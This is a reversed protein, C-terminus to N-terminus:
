QSALIQTLEAQLRDAVDQVSADSFLLEQYYRTVVDQVKPALEEVGSPAVSEATPVADVVKQFWPNEALYDAPVIDTRAPTQASMTIYDEQWQKELVQLIVKAAGDKNKADRPIALFGNVSATRESGFPMAVATFDKLADPNKDAIIAMIFSGAVISAIKGQAFAERYVLETQGTPILDEDHMSKIWELAEVTEKSNATAKGGSIFDGGFSKVIPMLEGYTAFASASASMTAFGYLSPDESHVVEAVHRVEEPTTPVDLGYRDLIANNVFMVRPNSMMIVGYIKGDPGKAMQNAPIFDDLSYGAEELWPDLPELLDDAMWARLAPDFPTVLDPPNGSSLLTFMKDQYEGGPIVEDTLTFGENAAELDAKMENWFPANDPTGWMWNSFEVKGAGTASDPQPAATSCATLALISAIAVVSM